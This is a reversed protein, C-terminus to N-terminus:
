AQPPARSRYLSPPAANAAAAVARPSIAVYSVLVPTAPVVPPPLASAAIMQMSLCIACDDHDPLVPGQPSPSGNAGREAAHAATVPFFDDAHFHDFSLVAQLALAFLALVAGFRLTQRDRM